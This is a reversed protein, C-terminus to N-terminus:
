RGDGAPVENASIWERVLDGGADMGQAGLLLVLDGPGAADLVESVADALRDRKVYAIGAEDLATLCAALEEELVRNREDATDDSSTVILTTTPYGVAWTALTEAIQANIMAGRMGRVAYVVHLRRPALDKAVRFVASISDPHGVTDDLVRFHGDYIIELRRPPATIDGLAATVVDPPAGVMMCATAALAANSVSSTGLMRLRIDVALPGARLSGYEALPELISLRFSTGRPTTVVSSIRVPAADDTGVAVGRLARDKVIARVVPNDADHVVPADPLLHDFFKTKAEVYAAFSGHYDSHELPILNTFVALGFRLGHVRRQALAHSTVEMAVLDCGEDRLRALSAHLQIPDPATHGTEGLVERRLRVGLSGITGIGFGAEALIAEMMTLVTTKGLTGSIGILRLGRAPHGFWASALQALAVRSDPVLFFPVADHPVEREAIVAAAGREVASAVFDHGDRATGPIAVFIEGGVIARTDATIGTM